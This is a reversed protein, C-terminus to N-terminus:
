PRLTRWLDNNRDVSTSNAASATGVVGKEDLAFRITDSFNASGGPSAVAVFGMNKVNPAVGTPDTLNITIDYYDSAEYDTDTDVGDDLGFNNILDAESVYSGEEAMAKEEYLAITQLATVAEARRTRTVHGTYAPIAVAGLIGIIAVVIMLEILTFGKKDSM